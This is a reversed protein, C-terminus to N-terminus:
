SEHLPKGEEETIGRAIEDEHEEFYETVEDLVAAREFATMERLEQQARDAAAVAKAVDAGNADPVTDIVEGSVPSVVDIGESSEAEVWEGDIYLERM